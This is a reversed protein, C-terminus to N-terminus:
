KLELKLRDMRDLAEQILPASLYPTLQSRLTQPDFNLMKDKVLPQHALYAAIRSTSELPYFPDTTSHDPFSFANDIAIARNNPLLLWNGENRDENYILYDLIMIADLKLHATLLDDIERPTMRTIIKNGNKAGPIFVQLSGEEGEIMRFITTPVVNLDFFHDVISAGIEAEVTCFNKNHDSINKFIAQIGSKFTILYNKHTGGLDAEKKTYDDSCLTELLENKLETGEAGKGAEMAEWIKLQVSSDIIPHTGSSIALHDCSMKASHVSSQQPDSPLIKSSDARQDYSLRLPTGVSDCGAGMVLLTCTTILSLVLLNKKVLPAIIKNNQDEM